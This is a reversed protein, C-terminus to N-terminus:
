NTLQPKSRAQGEGGPEAAAPKGKEEQIDGQGEGGPVAALQKGKEEQSPRSSGTVGHNQQTINL